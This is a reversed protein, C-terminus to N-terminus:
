EKERTVGEVRGRGVVGEPGPSARHASLPSSLISLKSSGRSERLSYGVLPSLCLVRSM